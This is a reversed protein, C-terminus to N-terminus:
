RPRQAASPLNQMLWGQLANLKGYANATLRRVPTESSSDDAMEAMRVSLEGESLENLDSYYDSESESDRLQTTPVADETTRPSGSSYSYFDVESDSDVQQATPATEETIRPSESRSGSEHVGQSIDILSQRVRHGLAATQNLPARTKKLHYQAVAQAPLGAVSM